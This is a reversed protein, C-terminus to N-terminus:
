VELDDDEDRANRRRDALHEWIETCGAGVPVDDLHSDDEGPVSDDKDRPSDDSGGAVCGDGMANREQM